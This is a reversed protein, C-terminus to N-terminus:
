RSSAQLADISEGVRDRSAGPLTDYALLSELAVRASDGPLEGGARAREIRDITTITMENMGRVAERNGPHARLVADYLQLASNIDGQDAFERADSLNRTIQHQLSESLNQFPIDPGPEPQFYLTYLVAGVVALASVAIASKRVPSPFFQKRFHNADVPRRKLDFDLAASIAKWEARSFTSSRSPKLGAKRADAGSAFDYPHRGTFAEYIVCALAYVDDAPTPKRGAALEPTAYSPTFGRIAEEVFDLRKPQFARAIGFDLVKARGETLVFVNEPKLDSHVIGRKHAYSLGDVVHRAIRRAAEPELGNPQEDLLTELPKGEMLEMTMFIVGDARDFDYVTVINPHALQQARRTERQLAMFSLEANPLDPNLVKLAIDTNEDQAEEKLLDTARYVTGMGGSGLVGVIRFRDRLVTGIPLLDKLEPETRTEGSRALPETGILASDQSTDSEKGAGVVKTPAAGSQEDTLKRTPGPAVRATRRSKDDTEDVRETPPLPRNRRDDNNGM